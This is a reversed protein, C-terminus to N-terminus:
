HLNFTTAIKAIASNPLKGKNKKAFNVGWIAKKMAKPCQKRQKIVMGEREDRGSSLPLNHNNMM